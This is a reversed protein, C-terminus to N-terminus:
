TNWPRAPCTSNTGGAMATTALTAASVGAILGLAAGRATTTINTM